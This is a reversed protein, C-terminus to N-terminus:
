SRTELAVFHSQTSGAGGKYPTLAAARIPQGDVRMVFRFVSEDYNFRLHISMDSKIGGKEALIYGGALDVLMIDGVTGLTAAQEIPLVPKGLLTSYPQGSLGGAPMYIPIGGTGVSLSMTYLQPKTNQNILWVANTNSSPFLRSDMKIINEAMITAAKQGTEKTVSVLCGANLIGLPQGAGTGNIIADDLLFGFESAFGTRIVGELAAADELLEDTAYCLGILKKLNLEIKRFKPASATKQAAEEEWYGLIGGSRNTVRSTEDIGNIKISNSNGSIQVRRCRSALVGTEFVQQLLEGSFDQQVLFGGDSPVSESLGSAARVNRLRPDVHGGPMGARMVAALQEGFTGFRDKNREEQTIKSPGPQTLPPGTPADLAKQMREQREQTLVIDHLEDIGDMLEKKLSRESESPDRNEVVCKADIDGVKKYLRAIDERYQSVTKM